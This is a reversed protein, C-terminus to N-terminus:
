VSQVIVGPLDALLEVFVVRGVRSARLLVDALQKTAETFVRMHASRQVSIIAGIREDAAPYEDVEVECCRVNGSDLDTVVALDAKLNLQQRWGM